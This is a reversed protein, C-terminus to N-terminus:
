DASASPFRGQRAGIQLQCGTPKTLLYLDLGQRPRAPCDERKSAAEHRHTESDGMHCLRHQSPPLGLPTDMPLVFLHDDSEKSILLCESIGNEVHRGSHHLNQGQPLRFSGSQSM